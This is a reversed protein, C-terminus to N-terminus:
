RDQQGSRPEDWIDDSSIEADESLMDTSKAGGGGGFEPPKSFSKDDAIDEKVNVTIVM